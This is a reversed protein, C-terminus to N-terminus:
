MRISSSPQSTLADALGKLKRSFDNPAAAALEACYSIHFLLCVLFQSILSRMACNMVIHWIDVAGILYLPSIFTHILIVLMLIYWRLRNDEKFYFVSKGLSATQIKDMMLFMLNHEVFWARIQEDKLLTIYDKQSIAKAITNSNASKVKAVANIWLAFLSDIDELAARAQVAVGYKNTFDVGYIISLLFLIANDPSQDTTFFSNGVNHVAAVFQLFCACLGTNLASLLLTWLLPYKGISKGLDDQISQWTRVGM